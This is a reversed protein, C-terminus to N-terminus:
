RAPEGCKERLRLIELALQAYAKDQDNSEAIKELEVRTMPIEIKGEATVVLVPGHGSWVMQSPTITMWLHSTDIMPPEAASVTGIALLLFFVFAKM